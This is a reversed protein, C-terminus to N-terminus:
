YRLFSEELLVDLREWWAEESMHLIFAEQNTDFFSTSIPLCAHIQKRLAECISVADKKVLAFFILYLCNQLVFDTLRDDQCIVNNRLIDTTYQLLKTVLLDQSTHIQTSVLTQHHSRADVQGDQLDDGVQLLFGYRMCFRIQEEDMCGDILMGDAVVSTGGKEYSIHLLEAENLPHEGDQQHLSHIQANQILYLSEYVSPYTSRPFQQEVMDVLRSIKMEHENKATHTNGHLRETFWDNFQQKETLSRRADDLYNDSYPYLMSYAFMAKHYGVRKQFLCQLIAIIWVNRLAQMTDELSLSRDFERVDRLFSVSITQFLERVDDQMDQFMPMSPDQMCAELYSIGQKRWARRTAKQKPFANLFQKINQMVGRLYNENFTRQEDSIMQKSDIRYYGTKLWETIGEDCLREISIM